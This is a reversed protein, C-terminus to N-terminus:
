TKRTEGMRTLDDLPSERLKMMGRMLTQMMTEYLEDSVGRLEPRMGVRLHEGDASIAVIAVISHGGALFEEVWEGHPLM